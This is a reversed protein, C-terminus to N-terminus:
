YKCVTYTEKSEGVFSHTYVRAFIVKASFHVIRYASCKREELEGNNRLMMAIYMEEVKGTIAM